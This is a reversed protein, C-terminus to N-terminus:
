RRTTCNRHEVMHYPYKHKVRAGRYTISIEIAGSNLPYQRITTKHGPKHETAFVIAMTRLTNFAAVFRICGAWAERLRNGLFHMHFDCRIWKGSRNDTRVYSISTDQPRNYGNQHLKINLYFKVFQGCM